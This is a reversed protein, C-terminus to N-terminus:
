PIPSIFSLTYRLKMALVFQPRNYVSASNNFTSVNVLFMVRREEREPNRNGLQTAEDLIVLDLGNLLDIQERKGDLLILNNVVKKGFQLILNHLDHRHLLLGTGTLASAELGEDDNSIVISMDTKTDLAGLFDGSSDTTGDDKSLKRDDGDTAPIPTRSKTIRM